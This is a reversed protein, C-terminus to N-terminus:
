HKQADVVLKIGSVPFRRGVADYVPFCLGFTNCQEGDLTTEDDMILVLGYNPQGGYWHQGMPTIDMTFVNVQGDTTDDYAAGTFFGVTPEREQFFPKNVVQGALFTAPWDCHRMCDLADTIFLTAKTVTFGRPLAPLDFKLGPRWTHMGNEDAGILVNASRDWWCLENDIDNQWPCDHPFSATVSPKLSFSITLAKAQSATVFTGHAETRAHALGPMAVAVFAAAIMIKLTRYL